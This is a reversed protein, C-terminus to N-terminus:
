VRGVAKALKKLKKGIWKDCMKFTKDLSKQDTKSPMYLSVSVKISEFAEPSYTFGCTMGVNAMPEDDDMIITGVEEETEVPKGDGKDVTSKGVIKEKSLTKGSKKSQIKVM